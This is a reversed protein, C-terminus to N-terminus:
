KYKRQIKKVFGEFFRGSIIVKTEEFKIEKLYVIAEDIAKFLKLNSSDITELEKSYIKDIPSDINQDIWIINTVNLM